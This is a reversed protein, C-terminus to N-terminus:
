NENISAAEHQFVMTGFGKRNKEKAMVTEQEYSQQLKVKEAVCWNRAVKITLEVDLDTVFCKKEEGKFYKYYVGKNAM